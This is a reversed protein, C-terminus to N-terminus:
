INGILFPAIGPRETHTERISIGADGVPNDLLLDAGPKSWNISLLSETM